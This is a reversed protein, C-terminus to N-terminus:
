IQERLSKYFIYVAKSDLIKRLNWLILYTPSISKLIIEEFKRRVWFNKM